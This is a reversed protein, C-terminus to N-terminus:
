PHVSAWAADDRVMRTLWDGLVTGDGARVNWIDGMM